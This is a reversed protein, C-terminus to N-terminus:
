FYNPYGRCDLHPLRRGFSDRDTQDQPQTNISILIKSCVTRLFQIFAVQAKAVVFRTLSRVKDSSVVIEGLLLFHTPHLAQVCILMLGCRGAYWGVWSLRAAALLLRASSGEERGFVCLLMM